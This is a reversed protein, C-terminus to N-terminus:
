SGSIAREIQMQLVVMVVAMSNANDDDLSWFSLERYTNLGQKMRWRIWSRRQCFGPSRQLMFV